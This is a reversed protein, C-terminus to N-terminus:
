CPDKLHLDHVRLEPFSAKIQISSHDFVASHVAEININGNGSIFFSMGLMRSLVVSATEEEVVRTVRRRSRDQWREQLEERERRVRERGWREEM